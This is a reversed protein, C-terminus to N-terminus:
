CDVGRGEDDAGEEGEKIWCGAGGGVVGRGLGVGGGGGGGVKGFLGVDEVLEEDLLAPGPNGDRKEEEEERM